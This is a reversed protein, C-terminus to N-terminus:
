ISLPKQQLAESVSRQVLPFACARYAGNGVPEWELGSKELTEGINKGANGWGTILVSDGNDRALELGSAQVRARFEKRAAVSVQKILDITEM